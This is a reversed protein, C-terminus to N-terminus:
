SSMNFYKELWQAVPMPKDYLYGQHIVEGRANLFDAQARTEVGEAVVRLHLTRAVGLITEVLAADNPDTPADTIFSRDIKLEQIPLRKLYSLSSYGTGFDDLSFHIGLAGLNLMKETVAGMNEIVVSETIEFVLWSPNIGSQSVQRRVEDVFDDREFHRASINLSIKLGCGREELRVLLQCIERLMWRELTSIFGAEEALSIFMGPPMLGRQPHQWRILAEASVQQGQANVQPQLFLRLEDREGARRLDQELRYRERIEQGMVSAFFIARGGGETKAQSAAWDAAQLIDSTQEDGEGPLIVIGASVEVQGGSGIGPLNALIGNRAQEFIDLAVRGAEERTGLQRYVLVAFEDAGVRAVLHENGFRQQLATAVSKLVADGRALGENQNIEKFRDLDFMIMASHRRAGRLEGLFRDMRLIFASRNALGTLVDEMALRDALSQARRIESLDSFVAVYYQTEGLDDKVASMTLWEPYVEGNKRRNWIDGAWTGTSELAAWMSRYFSADHRGSSLISPKQGLVEDEEFGTVRTFASNVAIINQHVDTILVGEGAADFVKSTLQLRQEINKRETSDRIYGHWLVSGDPLRTPTATGSVWREGKIPLRM